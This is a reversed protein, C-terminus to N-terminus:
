DGVLKGVDVESYSTDFELLNVLRRVLTTKGTGTMGWLNIILPRSQADPLMYWGSISNIIQDIQADLGVFESKLIPKIKELKAAREPLHAAREAWVQNQDPSAAEVSQFGLFVICIMLCLIQLHRHRNRVSASMGIAAAIEGM